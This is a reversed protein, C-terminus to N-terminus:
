GRTLGKASRKAKFSRAALRLGEQDIKVLAEVEKASLGALEAAGRPDALFRERAEADAYIRALFAEFARSSM